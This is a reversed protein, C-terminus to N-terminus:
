FYEPQKDKVKLIKKSWAIGCNGFKFTMWPLRLRECYRWLSGDESPIPLRMNWPADFAHVDGTRRQLVMHQTGAACLDAVERLFATKALRVRSIIRRAKHKTKWPKAEDGSFPYQAEVGKFGKARDEPIRGAKVQGEIWYDMMRITQAGKTYGWPMAVLDQELMGEFIFPQDDVCYMAADLKLCYTTDVYKAGFVFAALCEEREDKGNYDTRVVKDPWDPTPGFDRAMFLVVPGNFGKMKRFSDLTAKARDLHHQSSAVLTLTIDSYDTVAAGLEGQERPREAPEYVAAGIGTRGKKHPLIKYAPSGEMYKVVAKGSNGHWDHVCVVSGPKLYPEAAKLADLRRLGGRPSGASSDLFMFDFERDGYDWDDQWDAGPVFLKVGKVNNRYGEHNPDTPHPEGEVILYSEWKSNKNIVWTTIGAGLELVHKPNREAVLNALYELESDTPALNSKPFPPADPEDSAARVEDGKEGALGLWELYAATHKDHNLDKAWEHNSLMEEFAHCWMVSAVPRTDKRRGRKDWLWNRRVHKRGHMHIIKAAALADDDRCLCSTNWIMPAICAGMEHAILNGCVEDGYFTDGTIPVGNVCRYSWEPMVPSDKRFAFVGTNVAPFDDPPRTFLGAAIWPDIRKRMKRGGCHWGWDTFVMGTEHQEAMEFLPSVDGQVLTDADIFVTTEYPTWEYVRTKLPLSVGRSNKGTHPNPFEQVDCDFADAIRNIDDVNVSGGENILITIWGDYHRRLSWISVALRLNFGNSENIMYVVGQTYPNPIEASKPQPKANWTVSKPDFDAFAPVDKSLEGITPTVRGQHNAGLVGIHIPHIGPLEKAIATGDFEDRKDAPWQRVFLRDDLTADKKREPYWKKLNRLCKASAHFLQFAGAGIDRPNEVLKPPNFYEAEYGDNEYERTWKEHRLYDEAPQDMRKVGYITNSDKPYAELKERFDDPLIMDADLMLVWDSPECYELAENIAAGKRFGDDALAKCGVAVAGGAEAAQSDAHVGPACAIIYTNAHKRNKPLTIALYDAMDRCVTIITLHMPKGKPKRKERRPSEQAGRWDDYSPGDRWKRYHHPSNEPWGDRDDGCGEYKSDGWRAM